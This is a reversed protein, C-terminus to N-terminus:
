FNFYIFPNFDSAILHATAIYMIFVLSIMELAYYINSNQKDPFMKAIVIKFLPTAAFLSILFFVGYEYVFFNMNSDWLPLKGVSFLSTYYDLAIHLNEARFLVWGLVVIFFTIIIRVYGNLKDMKNKLVYREFIIFAGFYCGWLIFTWNAGHWLGTLFWVVCLNFINRGTSRRNGGLPIYVYDKFWSGLSIHWRRWFEGVSKSIYPYNFNELFEFGFMKGLGIAMDSYGSFDFYIQLTYCLIGAWAFSISIEDGAGVANFARDAIIAMNNALLIKKGLGIIFRNIGDAFKTTTEERERIQDDVTSYRVIPGAILQPFLAIYLMLSSLKNQVKGDGRYVDIVYSMAQFTFFSIGIPLAVQKYMIETNFINNINDLIFNIYKFYGLLCLNFIVGLTLYLKAKNKDNTINDSKEKDIKIGIYYNIIISFIMLFVFKPEGWAYFFLSFALLIYNRYKKAAVFYVLLLIPLFCYLFTISTFLM